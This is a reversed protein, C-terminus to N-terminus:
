GNKLSWNKLKKEFRPDIGKQIHEFYAKAKDRADGLKLAPYSGVKLRAVKGNHPSRFLIYFSKKSSIGIRLSFNSLLSDFYEDQGQAPPTIKEVLKDTLRKSYTAMADGTPLTYTVFIAHKLSNGLTILM